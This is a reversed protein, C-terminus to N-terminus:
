LGELLLWMKVSLAIVLIDMVCSWVLAYYKLTHTHVTRLAKLSGFVFIISHVIVSALLIKIIIILM